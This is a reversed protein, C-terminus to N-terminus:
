NNTAHQQKTAENIIARAFEESIGYHEAFTPLTLFNNVYDLWMKIIQERM